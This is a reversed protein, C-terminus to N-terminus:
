VTGISENEGNVRIRSPRYVVKVILVSVMEEAAAVEGVGEASRGSRIQGATKSTIAKQDAHATDRLKTSAVIVCDKKVLTMM